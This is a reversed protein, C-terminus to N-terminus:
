LIYDLSQFLLLNLEIHPMPVSVSLYIIWHCQCNSLDCLMSLLFIFIPYQYFSISFILSFYPAFLAVIKEVSGVCLSGQHFGSKRHHFAQPITTSYMINYWHENETKNLQYTAQYKIECYQKLVIKWSTSVKYACNM